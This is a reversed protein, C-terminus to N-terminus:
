RGSASYRHEELGARLQETQLHAEHAEMLKAAAERRAIASKVREREPLQAAKARRLLDEGEALKRHEAILNGLRELDVRRTAEDKGSSAQDLRRKALERLEDAKSRALKAERVSQEVAANAETNTVKEKELKKLKGQAISWHRREGKLKEIREFLRPLERGLAADDEHANLWADLDSM